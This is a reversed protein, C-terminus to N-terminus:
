PYSLYWVMWGVYVTCICVAAYIYSSYIRNKCPIRPCSPIQPCSPLPRPELSMYYEYEEEIAELEKFKYQLSPSAFHRTVEACEKDLDVFWGWEDHVNM